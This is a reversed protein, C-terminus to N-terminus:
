FLTELSTKLLYCRTLSIKLAVTIQKSRINFHKYLKLDYFLHSGDFGKREHEVEKGKREESTKEVFLAYFNENERTKKEEKKKKINQRCHPARKFIHHNKRPTLHHSILHFIRLFETGKRNNRCQM